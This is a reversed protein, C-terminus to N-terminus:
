SRRCLRAHACTQGPGGIDDDDPSADDPCRYCPFQGFRSPTNSKELATCETARHGARAQGADTGMHDRFGLQGPQDLCRAHPALERHRSGDVELIAAAALDAKDLALRIEGIRATPDSELTSM